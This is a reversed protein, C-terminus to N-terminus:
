QSYREDLTHNIPGKISFTLTIAYKTMVVEPAVHFENSISETIKERLTEIDNEITGTGEIRIGLQKCEVTYEDDSEPNYAIRGTADVPIKIM